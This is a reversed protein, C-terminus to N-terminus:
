VTRPLYRKELSSMLSVTFSPPGDHSYGSESIPPLELFSGDQSKSSRKNRHCFLIFQYIWADKVLLDENGIVVLLSMSRTIAVNFEKPNNLFGGLGAPDDKKLANVSRVCSLIIVSYEKGQFDLVNGVNVEGCGAKRLLARLLAVQGRYPAIVGIEELTARKEGVVKLVYEVVMDAEERNAWSALSDSEYMSHLDQGQLHHFFVPWDHGKCTKEDDLLAM